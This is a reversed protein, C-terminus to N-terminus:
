LRTILVQDDDNVHINMNPSHSRIESNQKLEMLTKALVAELSQCLLEDDSSNTDISQLNDEDIDLLSNSEIDDNFNTRSSSTFVGSDSKNDFSIRKKNILEDNSTHLHQIFHNRARRFAKVLRRDSNM